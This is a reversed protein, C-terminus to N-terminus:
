GLYFDLAKLIIYMITVGVMPAYPYKKLFNFLPEPVFFDLIKSITKWFTM